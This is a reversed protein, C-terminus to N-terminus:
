TFPTGSCSHLFGNWGIPCATVIGRHVITEHGVYYTVCDLSVMCGCTQAEQLLAPIDRREMFGYRAGARWMNPAIENITLRAGRNRPVSETEVTLIFLREHLSRNHKLHWVLVPPRKDSL